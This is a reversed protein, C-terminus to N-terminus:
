VGSNILAGRATARLPDAAMRVESIQASLEVKKLLKEFLGKFGTPMTTGGGLVIPIAHSIKPMNEAQMLVASLQSLLNVVL